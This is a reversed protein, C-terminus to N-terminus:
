SQGMKRLHYKIAPGCLRVDPPHPWEFYRALVEYYPLPQEDTNDVILKVIRVKGPHMDIVLGAVVEYVDGVKIVAPDVMWLPTKQVPKPASRKALEAELEEAKAILKDRVFTPDVLIDVGCSTVVPHASLANRRCMAAANKLHEERMDSINMEIGNSRVWKGPGGPKQPSTQNLSGM